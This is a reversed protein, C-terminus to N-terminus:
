YPLLPLPIVASVKVAGLPCDRECLFCAHCDAPYLIVPKGGGNLRIVDVSCSDAVPCGKDKRLWCDDCATRDISKIVM